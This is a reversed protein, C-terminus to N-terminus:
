DMKITQLCNSFDAVLSQDKVKGNVAIKLEQLCQELREM